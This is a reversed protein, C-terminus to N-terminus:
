YSKAVPLGGAPSAMKVARIIAQAMAEAAFSGVSTVDANKNGTSLAFLTDGDMM